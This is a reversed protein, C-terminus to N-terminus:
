ATVAELSAADTGWTGGIASADAVGAPGAAAVERLAAMTM